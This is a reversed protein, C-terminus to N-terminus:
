RQERPTSVTLRSADLRYSAINFKNVAIENAYGSRAGPVRGGIQAPVSRPIQALVNLFKPPYSNSIISSEFFIHSLEFRKVHHDKKITLVKHASFTLTSGGGAGGM